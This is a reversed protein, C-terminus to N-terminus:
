SRERACPRALWFRFCLGHCAIACLVELVGEEIVDAFGFNGQRDKQHVADFELADDGPEIIKAHQEPAVAV